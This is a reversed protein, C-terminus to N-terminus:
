RNRQRAIYQKVSVTNFCVSLADGGKLMVLFPITMVIAPLFVWRRTGGLFLLGRRWSSTLQEGAHDIAISCLEIDKLEAVIKLAAM